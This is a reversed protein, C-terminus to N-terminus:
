QVFILRRGILNKSQRFPAMAVDILGFRGFEPSQPQEAAHRRIPIAFCCVTHVRPAPFHECFHSFIAMKQPHRRSMGPTASRMVNGAASRWGDAM